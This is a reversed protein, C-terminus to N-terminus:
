SITSSAACDDNGPVLCPNPTCTGGLLWNGGAAFCDDIAVQSCDAPCQCCTGLVDGCDTAQITTDVCFALDFDFFYDEPGYAKVGGIGYDNGASGEDWWWHCDVPTGPTNNAIEIWYCTGPTVSVPTPLLATYEYDTWSTFDGALAKSVTVSQSSLVAGPLGAANQYFTITFDDGSDPVCDTSTNPDLYVGWWCVETIETGLPVFDDAAQWPTALDSTLVWSVDPMHCNSAGDIECVVGATRLANSITQQDNRILRDRGDSACPVAHQKRQGESALRDPQDRRSDTAPNAHVVASAGSARPPEEEVVNGTGALFVGTTIALVTVVRDTFQM